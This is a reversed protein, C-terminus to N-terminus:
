VQQRGHVSFIRPPPYIFQFPLLSLFSPSHRICLSLLHTIFTIDYLDTSSLSLSRPLYHTYLFPKQAPSLLLFPPPSVHFASLLFQRQNNDCRELALIDRPRHVKGGVQYGVKAKLPLYALWSLITTRNILHSLQLSISPHM